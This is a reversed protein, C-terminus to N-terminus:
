GAWGSRYEIDLEAPSNLRYADGGPPTSIAVAAQDAGGTAYTFTNYSPISAVTFTGNYDTLNKQDTVTGAAVTQALNANTKAYQLTTSSPIATIVLGVGNYVANAQNTIKGSQGPSANVPVATSSVTGTAAYTVTKAGVNVATVTVTGNFLANTNDVVSAGSVSAAAINAATKTYTFTSATPTAITYTGNITTNTNNTITSGTPVATAAVNTATKAYGVTTATVANIVYTGNFNVNTSNTAANVNPVADSFDAVATASVTSTAPGGYNGPYGSSLTDTYSNTTRVVYTKATGTTVGDVDFFAVDVDAIPTDVGTSVNRDFVKFGTYGGAPPTWSLSLRNPVTTSVVIALASPAPPEGLAQATATGSQASESGEADDLANRATVYFTYTQGPNLGTVDYSVGTGTTSTILAGTSFYINYGTIGGAGTVSPATWALSIKGPILTSATATLGTPAGPPGPAATSSTASSQPGVTSNADAFANRAAVTFSYSSYPTLGTVAYTTGAGTLVAIQTGGMFVNYGTVGGAGPVTPATWSLDIRGTHSASPTATLATPANPAGPVVATSTPSDVSQTGAATTVANQARVTYTHSDGPTLGTDSYPSSTATGVIVADRLISYGTVASGGDDSPATFAVSIVGSATASPTATVSAPATPPLAYTYYGGIIGTYSNGGGDNTTGGGGRNFRVSAGSIGAVSLNYSGGSFLWAGTGGGAYGTPLGTTHGVTFSTGGGGLSMNVGVAASYGSVLAALSTMMAYQGGNACTRGTDLGIAGSTITYGSRTTSNGSGSGGFFTQVQGM